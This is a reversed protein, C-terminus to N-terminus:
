INIPTNLDFKISITRKNLTKNRKRSTEYEGESVKISYWDGEWLILTYPSSLLEEFYYNEDDTLFNTNLTFTEEITSQYTQVGIDYTNNTNVQKNYNGKKFNVNKF